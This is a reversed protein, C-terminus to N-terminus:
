QLHMIYFPGWSVSFSVLEHTNGQYKPFGERNLVKKAPLVAGPISAFAHFRHGPVPFALIGSLIGDWVQLFGDKECGYKRIRPM